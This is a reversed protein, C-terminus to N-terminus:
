GCFVPCKRDIRAKEKRPQKLYVIADGSLDRLYAVPCPAPRGMWRKIKFSNGTSPGKTNTSTTPNVAASPVATPNPHITMAQITAPSTVCVMWGLDPCMNQASRLQKNCQEVKTPNAEVCEPQPPEDQSRAFLDHNALHEAEGLKPNVQTILLDHLEENPGAGPVMGVIRKTYVEQDSVEPYRSYAEPYRKPHRHHNRSHRSYPQPDRGSGEYDRYDDERHQSYVEPYQGYTPPADMLSAWPDVDYSADYLQTGTERMAAMDHFNLLLKSLQEGLEAMQDELAARSRAGGAPTHCDFRTSPKAARDQRRDDPQCRDDSQCRDEWRAKPRVELTPRLRTNWREDDDYRCSDPFRDTSPPREFWVQRTAARDPRMPCDDGTDYGSTDRGESIYVANEIAAELDQLRMLYVKEYIYEPLGRMFNILYTPDRDTDVGLQAVLDRYRDAYARVTENKNKKCYALRQYLEEERVAFRDLFACRFSSWTLIHAATGSEWVQASAGLRCRAVDLKNADTWGFVQGHREIGELWRRPDDSPIFIPISNLSAPTIGVRQPHGLPDM